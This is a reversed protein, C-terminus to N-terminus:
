RRRNDREDVRGPNSPCSPEHQWLAESTTFKHDDNHRCVHLVALEPDGNGGQTM